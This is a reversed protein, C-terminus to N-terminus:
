NLFRKCMTNDALETPTARLINTSTTKLPKDSPPTTTSKTVHLYVGSGTLQQSEYLDFILMAVHIGIEM